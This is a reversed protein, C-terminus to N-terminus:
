GASRCKSRRAAGQAAGQRLRCRDAGHRARHRARGAGAGRGGDPQHRAPERQRGVAAFPQQQGRRFLARDHRPAAALHRLAGGPRRSQEHARRGLRHRDGQGKRHRSAHRPADGPPGHCQRRRHAGGVAPRQHRPYEAQCQRRRLPHPACLAAAPDRWPYRQRAFRGRGHARRRNGCGGGAPGGRDFRPRHLRRAPRRCHAYREHDHQDHKGQTASVPKVGPRVM